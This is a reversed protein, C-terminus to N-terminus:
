IGNGYHNALVTTSLLLKENSPLQCCRSANKTIVSSSHMSSTDLPHLGSISNFMRCHVPCGEVAFLSKARFALPVLM